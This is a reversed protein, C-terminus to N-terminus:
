WIMEIIFLLNDFLVRPSPTRCVQIGPMMGKLGCFYIHAGKDLMDFVQTQSLSDVKSMSFSKDVWVWSTSM